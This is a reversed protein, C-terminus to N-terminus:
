GILAFKLGFVLALLVVAPKIEGFRGAILKCLAYLIFGLGIGNAISFTL